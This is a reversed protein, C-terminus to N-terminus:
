VFFSDDSDLVLIHCVVLLKVVAGVVVWAFFLAVFGRSEATSESVSSNSGMSKAYCVVHLCMGMLFDELDPPLCLPKKERAVRLPHQM